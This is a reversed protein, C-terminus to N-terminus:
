WAQTAFFRHNEVVSRARERVRAERGCWSSTRSWFKVTEVLSLSKSYLIIDAVVDLVIIFILIVKKAPIWINVELLQYFINM